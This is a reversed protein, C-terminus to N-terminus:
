TRALLLSSSRSVSTSRRSNKRSNLRSFHARACSASTTSRWWASRGTMIPTFKEAIAQMEPTADSENLAVFVACVKNYLEGSNDLALVTNEFTPTQRAGAIAEIERNHQAIGEELAPLYHEYKIQEFPPIKYKTTYETMFPNVNSEAKVKKVKKGAAPMAMVAIALLMFITKRM